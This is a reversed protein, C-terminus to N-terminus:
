CAKDHRQAAGTQTAVIEGLMAPLEPRGPRTRRQPRASCTAPSCSCAWWDADADSGPPLPHAFATESLHLEAAVQQMWGEDPWTDADLLGKVYSLTQRPASDDSM